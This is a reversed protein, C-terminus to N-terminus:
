RSIKSKRYQFYIDRFATYPDLADKKIEEYQGISLSARNTKDGARIAFSDLVPSVYSVPDLFYDGALGVTDRVSSPGLVPWNIYFIPGLGWVGLTQGFDEDQMRIGIKKGAYDYLGLVGFTSNFGFRLLESGASEVKLQLLNNVIRIPATINDFVNRVAIRANEPFIFSYGLAVPKIVMFYLKDNFYFFIRNLPELPDAIRDEEEDMYELEEEEEKVGDKEITLQSDSAESFLLAGDWDVNDPEIVATEPLLIDSSDSYPQDPVPSYEKIQLSEFSSFEEALCAGPVVSVSLAFIILTCNIIKM